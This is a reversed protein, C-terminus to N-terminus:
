HFVHDGQKFKIKLVYGDEVKQVDLVDITGAMNPDDVIEHPVRDEFIFFAQHSCTESSYSERPGFQIKRLNLIIDAGKLLRVPPNRAEQKKKM